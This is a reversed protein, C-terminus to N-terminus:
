IVANGISKQSDGGELEMSVLSFVALVRTLTEPMSRTVISCLRQVLFDDEDKGVRPMHQEARCVM